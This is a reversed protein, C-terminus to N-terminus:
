QEYIELLRVNRRVKFAHINFNDVSFSIIGQIPEGIKIIENSLCEKIKDMSINKEFNQEIFYDDLTIQYKYGDIEINKYKNMEEQIVKMLEELESFTYSLGRNQITQEFLLTIFYGLKEKVISSLTITQHLNVKISIENTRLIEILNKTKAKNLDILHSYGHIYLAEKLDLNLIDILKFFVNISPNTKDNNELRWLYSPNIENNMEDSLRQLSWGRNERERKILDGIFQNAGKLKIVKNILMRYICQIMEYLLYVDWFYVITM